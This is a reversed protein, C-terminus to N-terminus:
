NIYSAIILTIVMFKTISNVRKLKNRGRSLHSRITGEKINLKRSIEKISLENEYYLKFINKENEKLTSIINDFGIELDYGKDEYINTTCKEFLKHNRKNINYIKNCQNILIRIIWTKFYKVDKLVDIKIYANIITDQIADEVDCINYLKARAVKYLSEEVYQILKFFAEKDNKKAKEFLEEIKIM